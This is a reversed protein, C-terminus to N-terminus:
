ADFGALDLAKSVDVGADTLSKVARARGQIDSAQLESFDLAFTALAAKRRVEREVIRGLPLVCGHLVARWAERLGGGQSTYLTAPIGCAALVSETLERRLELTTAPTNAGLRRTTWDDTSTRGVDGRGTQSAVSILAGRRSKGETIAATVRKFAQTEEASNGMVGPWPMVSVAAQHHEQELRKEVIAALSGSVGASQLPGVGKISGPPRSYRFHMVGAGRRVVEVSGDPAALNLRYAWEDEDLSGGAVEYTTAFQRSAMDYVVDGSRILERAITSLAPAVEAAIRSDDPKVRAVGFARGVTGAAAELAAIAAVEPPPEQANHTEVGADVVRAEREQSNRAFTWRFPMVPNDAVM